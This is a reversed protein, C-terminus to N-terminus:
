MPPTSARLYGVSDELRVGGVGKMNNGFFANCEARGGRLAESPVAVAEFRKLFSQMNAPPPPDKAFAIVETYNKKLSRFQVNYTANSNNKKLKAENSKYADTAQKVACDQITRAVKDKGNAWEPQPEALIENRLKIFNTHSEGGKVRAVTKNYVLRAVGFCRKLETVQEATPKM